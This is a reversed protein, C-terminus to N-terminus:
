RSAPQWERLKYKKEDPVTIDFTDGSPEIAYFGHGLICDRMSDNMVMGAIAGLFTRRDGQTDAHRRVKEMRKIHDNIDETKPKSKVEVIIVKDGNELTIDIEAAIGNTRDEIMAGRYAKRVEFGLKRFKHALNPLVMCEVMEGYRGGLKGIQKNTADIAREIKAHRRDAEKKREAAERDFEKKREATERDFEKKQEAAEEAFRDMKAGLEALIAWVTEASPPKGTETTQTIAM